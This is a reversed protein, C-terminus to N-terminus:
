EQLLMDLARSLREPDQCLLPGPEAGPDSLQHMWFVPAPPREDDWRADAGYLSYLDWAPGELGLTLRFLETIQKTGDWWHQVREEDWSHVQHAATAPSDLDLMPVWLVM